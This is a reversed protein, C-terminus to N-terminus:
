WDHDFRHSEMPHIDDFGEKCDCVEIKCVNCFIDDWWKIRVPNTGQDHKCKTESM